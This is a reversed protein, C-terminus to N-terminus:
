DPKSGDPFTVSINSNIDGDMTVDIDKPVMSAVIRAYAVPDMEKVEKLIATGNKSWDKYLDDIFKQSLKNKSGKPRGKPNGSQGKKFTV